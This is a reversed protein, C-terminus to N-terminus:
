DKVLRVYMRYTSSKTNKQIGTKTSSFARALFAKSGSWSTVFSNSWFYTYSMEGKEELVKNYGGPKINLKFEDTPATANTWGADVGLFKHLTEGKYSTGYYDADSQSMGSIVELAMWEEDTAVHWGEPAIDELMYASYMVGYKAFNEHAKAEEITPMVFDNQGFVGVIPKGYVSCKKEDAAPDAFFPLYALNEAMWTTGNITVTKYERNDRTDTFTGEELYIEGEIMQTKYMKTETSVAEVGDKSVVKISYNTYGSADAVLYELESIDAAVIDSAEFNDDASLYLDYKVEDGDTDTSATWKVLLNIKDNELTEVVETIESKTPIANLTTFSYIDSAVSVGQADTAVVKWFYQTHAKLAEVEFTNETIESAKKDADALANNEAVYLDYKIEDGDADTAASWAFAVTKAVNASEHVPFSGVSKAPASNDTTFSFVSSEATLGEADNAVVKWFYTTHGNLIIEYKTDALDKAKIDEDTLEAKTGVFLTYKVMTREPDESTKWNLTITKAVNVAEDAPSLTTPVTPEMNKDDDDECSVISLMALAILSYKFITKM